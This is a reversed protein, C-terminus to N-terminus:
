RNVGGETVPKQNGWPNKLRYVYALVEAVAKYLEYPIERGVEVSAYLARALPKRELIPIGSEKALERIRLAMYGAGKAIVTPAKMTGRDYQLAVSYHTPNTIIVDAKPVTQRLRQAIRSMGKSIIKRRTTEDGETSKREDKVEDKTMKNQKLWQFKGWVYDFIAIVILIYMFKWFLRRMVDGTFLFIEFISTHLLQVMKGAEAKLAFYGIPLILCLKLIAKLVNVFGHISFIKKIGGIPNLFSMNFKFWKSKVNWKTQLMISATAVAAICVMFALLPPGFVVLVFIFGSLVKQSTIPETHSIAQFIIRFLMKFDNLLIPWLFRLGYFGTFLTLAQTVEHSSFIAGEGRLQGMRRDTPLETREEPVSYEAM